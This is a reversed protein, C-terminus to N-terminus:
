APTIEEMGLKQVARSIGRMLRKRLAEPSSGREAAIEAWDRGLARQEALYREEDSLRGRVKELLEQDAVIRSPTPEHDAIAQLAQDNGALLRRQDRRARHEWRVRDRLKNRAMTVLLHLLQEPTELEFEGLAAHVFFNALISQTIDMSDLVRRLRTDTLRVRVARRIEPEYCRVLEAAAKQDGARVQELLQHFNSEPSSM